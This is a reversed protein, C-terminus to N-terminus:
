ADRRRPLKETVADAIVTAVASKVVPNSILSKAAKLLKDLM